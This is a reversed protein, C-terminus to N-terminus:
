PRKGPTFTGFREKDPTPVITVDSLSHGPAIKPADAPPQAALPMGRLSPGSLPQMAGGPMTSLMYGPADLQPNHPGVIRLVVLVLTVAAGITAGRFLQDHRWAVPAAEVLRRFLRLAAGQVVLLASM